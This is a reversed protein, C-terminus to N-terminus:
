KKIEERATPARVRMRALVVDKGGSLASRKQFLASRKRFLASCKGAPVAKGPLGYGNGPLECGNGPLECGNGPKEEGLAASFDNNAIKRCSKTTKCHQSSFLVSDKRCIIQKSM